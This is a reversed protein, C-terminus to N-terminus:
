GGRKMIVLFSIYVGLLCGVFNLLIDDVDFFGIKFVLQTCEIILIMIICVLVTKFINKGFKNHMFFGLPVFVLINGFINKFGFPSTINRLYPSISRFLTLNINQSGNETINNHLAKIQSFSGDFKLVVFLILFVIYAIFLNKYM